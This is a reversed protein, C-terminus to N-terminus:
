PPASLWLCRPGGLIPPHHQSSAKCTQFFCLRPFGETSRGAEPQSNRALLFSLQSGPLCPPCTGWEPRSGKPRRQRPLSCGPAGPGTPLGGPHRPRSLDSCTIGALEHWWRGAPTRIEPGLLGPFSPSRAGAHGSAQGGAVLRGGPQGEHREEHEWPERSEKQRTHGRRDGKTWCGLCPGRSRHGELRLQSAPTHSVRALSPAFGITRAQLEGLRPTM